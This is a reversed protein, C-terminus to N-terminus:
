LGDDPPGDALGRGSTHGPAACFPAPGGPPAAGDKM